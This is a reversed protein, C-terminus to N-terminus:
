PSATPGPQAETKERWGSARILSLNEYGNVPIEPKVPIYEKQEAHAAVFYKLQEKWAYTYYGEWWPWQSNPIPAPPPDPPETQAPIADPAQIIVLWLTHGSALTQAARELEPKIPHIVRMKEKLLDYRHFHYDGLAPLTTWPTRGKYYREFTIGCQWPNVVIFDGPEARNQLEAAILDINTQRYGAYQLTPFFLLGVMIVLFAAPWVRFRRCWNALAADMATAAVVLLPLYYWPQTPLESIRLFVLFGAIGAVLASAGYLPLDERGIGASKTRQLLAALGAGLALPILGLWMWFPWDMLPWDMLSGGALMMDNWIMAFNFEVKQLIWWSQSEIILPIYPILSAGAVLGVGFVLGATKWQRHRACVVGGAICAALVLFANQFLTQVSLIAALTALLFSTRGPAQVLKWVLGLTILIFLSGCGYARLSGGWIVVTVNAALLGLSIFPLRFGMIRANLWMAGLLGLGILFGLTRLGADSAGLGLASWVRVLASFFLPFSEHALMRWTESLAPLTALQVGSAEDRWLAGAHTFYVTQLGAGALTAALCVWSEIQRAPPMPKESLEPM